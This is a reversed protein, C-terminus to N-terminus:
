NGSSMKNPQWGSPIYVFSARRNQAFCSEQQEVCTPSLKGWGVPIVIRDPAIGMQILVDKVALARRHSLNLNYIISGRWDAHGFLYFRISPHDKLWQADTQLVNPNNPHASNYDFLVDHLNNRFSEQEPGFVNVEPAALTPQDPVQAVPPTSQAISSGALVLSSVIAFITKNM